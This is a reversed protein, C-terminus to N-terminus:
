SRGASSGRKGNKNGKTEASCVEGAGLAGDRIQIKKSEIFARLDAVDYRMSGGIPVCPIQGAKKLSRLTRECLRLMKAAEKPTVLLPEVESTNM